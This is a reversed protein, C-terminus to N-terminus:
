MFDELETQDHDDQGAGKIPHIKLLNRMETTSEFRKRLANTPPFAGHTGLIRRGRAVMQLLDRNWHEGIYSDKKLSYIGTLPQYRMPYSVAKWDSALKMRDFLDQPTDEYNFLEYLIIDRARQGAEEFIKIGRHIAKHQRLNDFGAKISRVRLMGILRAQTINITRLDIGGTFDIKRDYEFLITLAEKWNPQAVVNNDQVHIWDHDPHIQNEIHKRTKSKIDGELTPVACFKCRRSCGRSTFVISTKWPQDNWTPVLSYDPSQNEVKPNLGTVVEVGLKAVRDPMLSAYIGGLKIKARPHNMKITRIVKHVPWWAWTWLSTVLVLDPEKEPKTYGYPM